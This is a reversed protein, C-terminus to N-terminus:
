FPLVDVRDAPVGLWDALAVAAGDSLTVLQEVDLLLRRYSRALRRGAGYAAVRDSLGQSIYVVRTKLLGTRKLLALPLGCTDVTSVIVRARNLARLNQLAIDLAFGMGVRRAVFREVPYWPRRFPDRSEDEVFGARHRGSLSTLGYFFERSCEGRRWEALWRRRDRRFVWVVDVPAGDVIEGGATVRHIM